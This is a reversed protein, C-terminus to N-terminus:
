SMASDCPYMAVFGTGASIACSRAVKQRLTFLRRPLFDAFQSVGQVFNREGFSARLLQTRNNSTGNRSSILLPQCRAVHLKPMDRVAHWRFARETDRTVAAATRPQEGAQRFLFITNNSIMADYGDPVLFKKSIFKVEPVRQYPLRNIEVAKQTDCPAIKNVRSRSSNCESESQQGGFSQWIVSASAPFGIDRFRCRRLRVKVLAPLCPCLSRKIV